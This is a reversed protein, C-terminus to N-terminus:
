LRAGVTVFGAWYFPHAIQQQLFVGFRANCKLLSDVGNFLHAPVEDAVLLFLLAEKRVLEVRIPAHHRELL